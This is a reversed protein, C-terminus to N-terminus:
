ADLDSPGEVVASKVVFVFSLKPDYVLERLDPKIPNVLITLLRMRCDSVDLVFINTLLCPGM